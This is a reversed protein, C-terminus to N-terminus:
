EDKHTDPFLAGPAPQQPPLPPASPLNPACEEVAAIAAELAKYARQYVNRQACLLLILQSEHM